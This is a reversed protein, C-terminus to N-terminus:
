KQEDCMMQPQKHLTYGKGVKGFARCSSWRWRRGRSPGRSGRGRAGWGWRGRSVRAGMAGGVHLARLLRSEELRDVLAGVDGLTKALDRVVLLRM